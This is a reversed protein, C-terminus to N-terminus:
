LTSEANYACTLHCMFWVGVVSAMIHILYKSLAEERYSSSSFDHQDIIYASFPSLSDQECHQEISSSCVNRYAEMKVEHARGGDQFIDSFDDSDIERSRPSM